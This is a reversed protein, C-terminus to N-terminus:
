RKGYALPTGSRQAYIYAELARMRPDDEALKQGRVPHEICWNIMDRLLAVRGLQVQFKPYTEPHTNAANPHCMDCSVAITSGLEDASHFVRSGEAVFKISQREWMAVDAETTQGYTAGQGRGILERNDYPDAITHKGREIAVWDASAAEASEPSGQVPKPQEPLAPAAPAAPVKDRQDAAVWEEDVLGDAHVTLTGDGLGDNPDFPDPRNMQITLEPLGEPAYPWPWATSLMGHFYINDIRNTLLQHTHGHVVTVHEFPKL